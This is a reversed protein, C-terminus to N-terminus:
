LGDTYATYFALGKTDIVFLCIYMTCQSGFFVGFHKQRVRHLFKDIRIFNPVDKGSYM